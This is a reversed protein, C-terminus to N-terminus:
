ELGFTKVLLVAMQGRTNASDPCYRLPSAGCGGTISRGYLDEIWADAFSGVPVDEFIGAAAPPAHASGLLTKLLFVAMQARTVPADPCYNGGGCGATVGLSVLDEIWDAAFDGQAVDSFVTGTATPPEHAAGYKSKLLFVAMQARTVPGGPCFIGTGCGGTIGNRAVTNVADHFINSPPADTFDVSIAAPEAPVECAGLSDTLELLMTTGPDGSQFTATSTGQGGTILGGTLAWQADHGAGSDSSATLGDTSPPVSVPATITPAPFPCELVATNETAADNASVPDRRAGSVAAASTLTGTATPTVTVVVAASAGSALSGLECTVAHALLTCSGQTAVASEITAALSLTDSVSVGAASGPGLNEVTLTYALPVGVLAPDPADAQSVALDAATADVSALADVRGWGFTNNPIASGPVGGCTQSTTRPVATSTIATEIADPEGSLDPSASLLLAVLGAVHPGAMSTGDFVAYGGGPVSSRVGVGPASIDPKMRNSGDVTVPGRSSFSAIQDTLGTAGVSFSADYIAAPDEVTSCSSGSNGASVVVLIGAARTNEVVTQLVAPDTCGESPPCGWSNNIVHPAKAPDPNQNQLNTPAIFWEFCESYTAPTGAGEDMNRCGIWKAGPAVGIQNASGDDGVMTGMTHTGHSNDDCPATADAGCDGGGSHIADHWNYNHNAGLGLWGRYKSKLAPHDWDYGTDQGGVVVGQGTYGLAWVEPAHVKAVGWEIADPVDPVAGAAHQAVPGDFRVSPNAYVHFVDERAAIAEVLARDGRVQVMNAVWFARHPAAREALFRLLSAQTAEAHARLTDAVFAGKETRAALSQAGRLDAQDRLMVLFEADGGSAKELVWPDVKQALTEADVAAALALALALSCVLTTRFRM